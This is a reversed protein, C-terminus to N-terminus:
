PSSSFLWSSPWTTSILERMQTRPYLPRSVSARKRTATRISRQDHGRTEPWLLDAAAAPYTLRFVTLCGAQAGAQRDQVTAPLRGTWPVSGGVLAAWYLGCVNRYHLAAVWLPCGHSRIIAGCHERTGKRGDVYHAEKDPQIPPRDGVGM